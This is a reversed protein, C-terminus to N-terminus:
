TNIIRVYDIDSVITAFTELTGRNNDLLRVLERSVAKHGYELIARRLVLRRDTKDQSVNYGPLIGDDIELAPLQHQM